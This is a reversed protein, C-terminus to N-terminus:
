NSGGGGPTGHVMGTDTRYINLVNSLFGTRGHVGIPESIIIQAKNNVWLGARDAFAAGDLVLQDSNLRRLFQSKGQALSGTQHTAMGPKDLRYVGNTLFGHHDVSIRPPCWPSLSPARPSQTATAVATGAPGRAGRGRALPSLSLALKTWGRSFRRSREGLNNAFTGDDHGFTSVLIDAMAESIAAKSGHVAGVVAWIGERDLDHLFQGAGALADFVAELSGYIAGWFQYRSSETFNHPSNPSHARNEIMLQTAAGMDAILRQADEFSIQGARYLNQVRKNFLYQGNLHGEIVHDSSLGFPDIYKLPNSRVYQYLNMSDAYGIPDWSHFRGMVPDYWRHRSVYLQPEVSFVYGAFGLVNSAPHQPDSILGDALPPRPTWWDISDVDADDILGNRSLDVDARYGEDGIAKNYLDRWAYYDNEDLFGDDNFDGNWRHTAKGYADYRIRELVPPTLGTGIMAVTSFQPDTLHYSRMWPGDSMASRMLRMVPDDIARVGWITENIWEAEPDEDTNLREELLQWAASYYFEKETVQEGDQTQELTRWHLGNYQSSMTRDPPSTGSYGYSVLRNWADYTYTRGLTGSPVELAATKLNGAHDYTHALELTTSPADPYRNTIANFSNHSRGELEDADTCTGDFPTVRETGAFLWNGLRDLTWTQSGAAHIWTSGDPVGRNAEKLRHLGDYKFQSHRNPLGSASRVDFRSTRNSARDYTYEDFVIAPRLPTASPPNTLGFEGDVWATTTVRGFRDWGGYVGPSSRTGDGFASRDLQVDADVYDVVAHMRLGLYKYEVDGNIGSIRSIRDDISESAGYVYAVSNWYPYTLSVVRSRNSGADGSAPPTNSYEYAVLHTGELPDGNSDLEVAGRVNQFVKEVKNLDSYDFRVGNVPAGTSTKSTVDELLGIPDYATDIRTVLQDVATGFQGVQDTTVRGQRDRHYEHRTGLQDTMSRPEGQANYAYKVVQPASQGPYQVQKLLRNSFLLSDAKNSPTGVTVGYTYTTIQTNEEEEEDPVHAIRKEIQGAGNYIFSTVRDTADGSFGGSQSWRQLTPNWAVDTGIQWSECVAGLRGLSDYFRLTKQGSPDIVMGVLGRDNYATETVLVTDSGTVPASPPWPSPAAGGKEFHTTATGFDVAQIVRDADDYVYGFYTTPCDAPDLAGPDGGGLTHPRYTRTVLDVRGASDFRTTTQELVADDSISTADAWNGAQGPLEDDARDTLYETKVRGHGDRVLKRMPGNPAWQALERGLDDYWHHTELFDDPSSDDPDIAIKESVSLGRQSYRFRKHERRHEGATSTPEADYVSSAIVRGLNDYGFTEYRSDTSSAPRKTKILQDREDFAHETDREEDSLGGSSPEGTFTRVRTVNGNGAADNDYQYEAVTTMAESPVGVKVAIVRDLVDYQRETITLTADKTQFQRGVSDYAFTTVTSLDNSPTTTDIHHWRRDELVLGSHSQKMTARAVEGGLTFQNGRPNYTATGNVLYDATVFAVGAADRWTVTAAGDFTATSPGVLKHPLVIETLYEMGTREPESTTGLRRVVYSSVGRSGASTHDGPPRITEIVRGLLDVRAHTTLEGGNSATGPVTGIATALGPYDGLDLANSADGNPASPSANRTVQTVAGTAPDFDRFTVAGDAAISWRNLGETDFLEYTHVELPASPPTPGNEDVTEREVSTKVWAIAAGSHFGYDFKVFEIDDDATPTSDGVTVSNPEGASIAEGDLLRWKQFDSFAEIPPICPASNPMGPRFFMQPSAGQVDHVSVYIRASGRYASLDVAYTGEQWHRRVNAGLTPHDCHVAGAMVYPGASVEWTTISAPTSLPSNAAASFREGCTTGLAPDENEQEHPIVNSVTAAQGIYHLLDLATLLEGIRDEPDGSATVPTDLALDLVENWRADGADKIYKLSDNVAPLADVAGNVLAGEVIAVSLFVGMEVLAMAEDRGRTILDVRNSAGDYFGDPPFPPATCGSPGSPWTELAPGLMARRAQIERFVAEITQATACPTSVLLAVFLAALVGILPMRVGHSPAPSVVSYQHTAM